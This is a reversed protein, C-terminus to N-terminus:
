WRLYLVLFIVVLTSVAAGGNSWNVMRDRIFFGHLSFMGQLFVLVFLFGLSIDSTQGTSWIKWLQPLIMLPNLFGVWWVIRHWHIRTAVDERTKIKEMNPSQLVRNVGPVSPWRVTVGFAPAEYVIVQKVVNPPIVIYDRSSARLIVTKTKGDQELEFKLAGASISIFETGAFSKKGYDFPEPYDWIKIEFDSSKTLGDQMHGVAWGKTASGNISDSNGLVVGTIAM